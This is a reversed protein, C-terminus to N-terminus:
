GEFEECFKDLSTGHNVIVKQENVMVVGQFEGGSYILNLKGVEYGVRKIAIFFRGPNGLRYESIPGSLKYM